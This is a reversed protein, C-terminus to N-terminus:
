GALRRARRQVETRAREEDVRTARGGAVVQEGEVWASEVLRSSASWLLHSLLDREEVLPVFALDDLRLLLMDARRGPELAGVPLGLAAAGGRTGLALAEPAPVAAADRTQLKALLPALRLEEWLDLDNNGAPGDTGLGVRLGLALMDALRAVGSALKANAQPCHAVAVDHERYLGLEEDTLWVSHAALVRGDLFGLGALAAAHGSEEETEGIHVHVLADRERAAAAIAELAEPPLTYYAHAAIGVEVRDHRGREADHFAAVTDLRERWDLWGPVHMVGPTLLCRTGADLVAQLIAQEHVYMECSTTVGNRLLEACALTMGWYVDEDTLKAERPWLVEQLFRQLPLDEAAGRFLTMPSHSHCNVLGPMLLGHLRVHEGAPPAGVSTISGDEVTVAGPRLLRGDHDCTVVADAVFVRTGPVQRAGTDPRSGAENGPRSDGGSM